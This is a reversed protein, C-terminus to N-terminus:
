KPVDAFNRKVMHAIKNCQKGQIGTFHWRSPSSWSLLTKLSSDRPQRSFSLCIQLQLRSWHDKFIRWLLSGFLINTYAADHAKHGEASAIRCRNGGSVVKHCFDFNCVFDCGCRFPCLCRFAMGVWPLPSHSPLLAFNCLAHRLHRLISVIISM